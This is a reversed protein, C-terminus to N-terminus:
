PPAREPQPWNSAAEWNGCANTCAEYTRSGSCGDLGPRITGFSKPALGKGRDRIELLVMGEKMALRIHATPSGSHRHINTLSEQLVRFLALEADPNLRDFGAGVEFTTM